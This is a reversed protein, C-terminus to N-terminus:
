ATNYKDRKKMVQDVIKKNSSGTFRDTLVLTVEPGRWLQRSADFVSIEISGTSPM